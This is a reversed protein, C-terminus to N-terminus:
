KATCSRVTFELIGAARLKNDGSRGPSKQHCIERGAPHFGAALDHHQIRFHGSVVKIHDPLDEYEILSASSRYRLSEILYRLERGNGPWDYNELARRVSSRFRLSKRYPRQCHASSLPLCPSHHRRKEPAATRYQGSNWQPSLVSRTQVQGTKMLNELNQNTAAIVRFDSHITKNGGLREIEKMELVRLLKPQMDLPMDGIEDLFVSGM